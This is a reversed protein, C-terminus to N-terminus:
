IEGSSQSRQNGTRISRVLSPIVVFNATGGEEDIETSDSYVQSVFPNRSYTPM